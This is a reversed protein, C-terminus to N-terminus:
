LVVLSLQRLQYMFNLCKILTLYKTLKLKGIKETCIMMYRCKSLDQFESSGSNANVNNIKLFDHDM